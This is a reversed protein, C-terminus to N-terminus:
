RRRIVMRSIYIAVIETGVELSVLFQGPGVTQSWKRKAVRDIPEFVSQNINNLEKDLKDCESEFKRWTPLLSLMDKLQKLWNKLDTLNSDKDNVLKDANTEKLLQKGLKRANKITETIRKFDDTEIASLMKGMDELMNLDTNPDKIVRECESISNETSELDRTILKLHGLFELWLKLWNELKEKGKNCHERAKQAM